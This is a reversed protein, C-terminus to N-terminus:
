ELLRKLADIYADINELECIDDCLYKIFDDEKVGIELLNCSLVRYLVKGSSDNNVKTRPDNQYDKIIENLSRNTFYKDGIHKIFVRDSETILKKRLYKEISPIPLFCKPFHQFMENKLVLEKVDGDCISIIRKGVGLTNYTVMDHHLKLMQNYGGAPLVCCLKSKTLNHDRIVKEVLTKALEDEVLLLFDFGNPVYLNRVAYNPYCPNTVEINGDINELLYINKPELRHILESSHTSFYVVLEANSVKLLNQLFLVLRDIAAPHLALEVEDILFLLKKSGKPNKIVLNNIFDILSILMSEGSSMRFQSILNDKVEIFYPIGKFGNTEAIKRNKIKKLTKYYNIDNHLIFGLQQSVFEDADVLDKKIDSKSMFQDINNYDDFRCGYFISGEYFGEIHTSTFLANHFKHTRRDFTQGFKGTTLRNGRYFWEDIADETKITIKSQKCLDYPKLMHASSTKVMLSLALMLTSKGCSNEGVIAYMGKELPLKIKAYVINKVKEIQLDIEPMYYQGKSLINCAKNYLM